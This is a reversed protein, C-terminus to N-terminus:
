HELLPVSSMLPNILFHFPVGKVQFLAGFGVTFMIILWPTTFTERSLILSIPSNDGSVHVVEIYQIYQCQVLCSFLTILILFYFCIRM